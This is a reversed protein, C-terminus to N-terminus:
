KIVEINSFNRNKIGHTKYRDESTGYRKFAEVPDEGFKM